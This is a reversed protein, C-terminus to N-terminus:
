ADTTEKEDAGLWALLSRVFRVTPWALLAIVALLIWIIM